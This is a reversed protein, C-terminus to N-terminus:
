QWYNKIVFSFIFFFLYSFKLYRRIFCNSRQLIIISILEKLTDRLIQWVLTLPDRIGRTGPPVTYFVPVCSTLAARGSLWSVAYSPFTLPAPTSAPWLSEQGAFPPSNSGKKVFISVQSVAELRLCFWTREGRDEGGNLNGWLGLTGPWM